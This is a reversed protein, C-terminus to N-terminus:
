ADHDLRRRILTLAPLLVFDHVIVAGALWAVLSLVQDFHQTSLVLWNGWAIGIVGIAVLVIQTTRM